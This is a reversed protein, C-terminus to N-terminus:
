KNIRKLLRLFISASNKWSYKELIHQTSGVKKTLLVDLDVNPENVDIYQVSDDFIERMVPINSVIAPIGIALAELPPIGFGEYLSPFVLAKANEMLAKMSEDTQYGLYHVNNTFLNSTDKWLKPNAGGIIVYQKDPFLKANEIIWKFNKHPAISSIAIYYKGRKLNPYKEFVNYDAEINKIHEWGNGIVDIKESKIHFMDLIESKSFESVTILYKSRHIQLLCSTLAKIFIKRYTASRWEPLRYMRVDHVTSISNRMMVPKSSFCVYLSNNKKAYKEAAFFDWLKRNELRVVKINEFTQHYDSDKPIVLTFKYSSEPILQDIQKLIENTYRPIGNIQGGLGRGNIVVNM